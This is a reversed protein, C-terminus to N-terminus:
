RGAGAEADQMARILQARNRVGLRRYLRTLTAEVAKVSLFTARAIEGNTAGAMVLTVIRQEAESLQMGTGGDVRSLLEEVAAAWPVAQLRAYRARAETLAGRAAPRRHARRWLVGLTHWARALEFPYPHDEAEEVAVALGEAAARADGGAAILVAEARALGLLVTRRRLRHAAARIDTLVEEAENRAGVTALAEVLDAHWLFVAPDVRGLKGEVTSAERLKVAAAAPDNALLEVQGAVALAMTLWDDDGAARCADIAQQALVRARTPSGAFLEVSAGVLLGPGATAEMDLMLRMCERGAHLAAEFRGARGDIAAVSILVGSYERVLGAREVETRLEEIRSTACEVEGTFVYTMAALQRARITEPTLPLRRALDAARIM